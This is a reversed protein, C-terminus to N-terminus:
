ITSAWATAELSLPKSPALGDKDRPCLHVPFVQIRQRSLNSRLLVFCLLFAAAAANMRRGDEKEKERLFGGVELMLSEQAVLHITLKAMSDLRSDARAQLQLTTGVCGGFVRLVFVVLNRSAANEQLYSKTSLTSPPSVTTTPRWSNPVSIELRPLRGLM